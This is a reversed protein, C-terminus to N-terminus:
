QPSATLCHQPESSPGSATTTKVSLPMCPLTLLPILPCHTLSVPPVEEYVPLSFLPGWLPVAGRSSLPPEPSCKPCFYATFSSFFSCTCGLLGPHPAASPATPVGSLMRTNGYQQDPLLDEWTPCLHGTGPQLLAQNRFESGEVM